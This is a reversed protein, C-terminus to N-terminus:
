GTTSLLLWVVARMSFRAIVGLVSWIMRRMWGVMRMEVYCRDVKDVDSERRKECVVGEMDVYSLELDGQRPWMLRFNVDIFETDIM